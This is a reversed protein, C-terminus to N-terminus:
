LMLKHAVAQDGVFICVDETMNIGVLVSLSSWMCDNRENEIRKQRPRTPITKAECMPSLIMVNKALRPVTIALCLSIVSLGGNSSCGHM